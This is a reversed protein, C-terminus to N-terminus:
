EMNHNNNLSTFLLPKIYKAEVENFTRGKSDSYFSDVTENAYVATRIKDSMNFALEDAKHNLPNAMTKDHGKVWEFEIKKSRSLMLSHIQQIVEKNVIVEGDGKRWGKKAWGWLWKEAVNLAYRSDSQVHLHENPHMLLVTMLALLEAKQNTGSIDGNVYWHEDERAWAWAIPGGIDGEANRRSSGDCAVLISSM